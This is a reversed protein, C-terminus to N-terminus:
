SGTEARAPESKRAITVRAVRRRRVSEVRVRWDGIDVEDGPRALRGLAEAVAGGVTDSDLDHLNVGVGRLDNLTALGDAVIVGDSRVEVRPTEEDHEDRIEGVIEEIVDELTAIGSTGGYEDVVIALPTQRRQMERMLDMLSTTEPVVIAERMVSRLSKPRPEAFVLDKMNVYGIVKDLDGGEVVPYRTFGGARARAIAEDVNLGADLYMVDLRPVMVQRATRDSFAMVRELLLRKADSLRGRAYAQGLVGLIEEESLAGEADHVSPYGMARLLVSALGNLVLLAPLSLWYFARLPLSVTLAVREASGIAILKPLLEGFLIHAGTLTAFSVAHAVQHLAPGHLGIRGGLGDLAGAVYPEAVSGLGLSALTIGLQTASLYRDLQKCIAVTARASAVDRRALREIQTARLKVLAFEATVFFGNLFVFLATLLLGVIVAFLSEM